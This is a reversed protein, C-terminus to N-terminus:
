ALAVHSSQVRDELQHWATDNNEKKKLEAREELQHRKTDM